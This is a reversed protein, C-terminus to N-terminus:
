NSASYETGYKTEIEIGLEHLATRSEEGHFQWGRLSRLIGLISKRMVTVREDSMVLANM